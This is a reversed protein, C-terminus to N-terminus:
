SHQAVLMGMAHQQLSSCSKLHDLIAPRHWFHVFALALWYLGLLMCAVAAEPPSRLSTGTYSTDASGWWLKMIMDSAVHLM